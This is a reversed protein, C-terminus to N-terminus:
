QEERRGHHYNNLEFTHNCAQKKSMGCLYDGHPRRTMSAVTPNVNFDLSSNQSRSKLKSSMALFSVDSSSHARDDLLRAHCVMIANGIDIPVRHAIGQWQSHRCVYLVTGHDVQQISLYKGSLMSLFAVSGFSEGM